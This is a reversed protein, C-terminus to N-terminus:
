RSPVPSGLSRRPTSSLMGAQVLGSIGVLAYVVSTLASTEGFQMGFLTAVLDFHAISVLGWNVAGVIVLVSSLINLTKM